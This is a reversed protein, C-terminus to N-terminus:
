LLDVGKIDQIITKISDDVFKNVTPYPFHRTKVAIYNLQMYTSASPMTVLMIQVHVFGDLNPQLSPILTTFGSKSRLVYNSENIMSIAVRTQIILKGLEERNVLQRSM